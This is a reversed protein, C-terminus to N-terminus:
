TGFLAEAAAERRLKRGERIKRAVGVVAVTTTALIIVCVVVIIKKPLVRTGLFIYMDPIVFAVASIGLWKAALKHQNDIFALVMRPTSYADIGASVLDIGLYIWPNLGYQGVLAWVIATRIFSWLVVVVAWTRSLVKRRRLTEASHEIATLAAAAM